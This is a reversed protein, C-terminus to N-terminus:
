PLDPFMSTDPTYEIVPVTTDPTITSDPDAARRQLELVRGNGDAVTGTRTNVQIPDGRAPNRAAELLEADSLTRLGPRPRGHAPTRLPMLDGIPVDKFPGATPAM